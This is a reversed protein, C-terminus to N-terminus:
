TRSKWFRSQMATFIHYFLFFLLHNAHLCGVQGPHNEGCTISIGRQYDFVRFDNIHEGIFDDFGINSDIFIRNDTDARKIAVINIIGFTGIKCWAENIRM